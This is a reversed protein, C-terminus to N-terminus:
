NFHFQSGETDKKNLDKTEHHQVGARMFFCKEFRDGGGM